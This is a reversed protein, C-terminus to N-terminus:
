SLTRSEKLYKFTDESHKFGLSSGAIQLINYEPKLLKFYYQKRKVVDERNCYELIELTFNSFGYKLLANHILTNHKKLYEINYYKYFRSYFNVTSGVYSKGNANNVWRYVLSKNKNERFIDRKNLLCNKYTAVINYGPKDSFYRQSVHQLFNTTNTAKILLLQTDM